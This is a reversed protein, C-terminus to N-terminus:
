HVARWDAVERSACLLHLYGFPIMKRGVKKLATQGRWGDKFDGTSSFDKEGSQVSGGLLLRHCSNCGRASGDALSLALGADCMTKGAGWYARNRRCLSFGRLRLRSGRNTSQAYNQWQSQLSRSLMAWGLKSHCAFGYSVGPETWVVVKRFLAAHRGGHFGWPIFCRSCAWVLQSLWMCSRANRESGLTNCHGWGKQFQIQVSELLSVALRELIGKRGACLCDVGEGCSCRLQAVFGSECGNLNTRVDEWSPGTGYNYIFLNTKSIAVTKFLHWDHTIPYRKM